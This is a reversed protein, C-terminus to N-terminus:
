QTKEELPMYQHSPGLVAGGNERHRLESQYAGFAEEHFIPEAVDHLSLSPQQRIVQNVFHISVDSPSQQPKTLQVASKVEAEFNPNIV